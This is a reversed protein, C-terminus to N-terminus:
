GPAPSLEAVLGELLFRAVWTRAGVERHGGGRYAALLRLAAEMAPGLCRQREPLPTHPQHPRLSKLITDLLGLCSGAPQLACPAAELLQRLLM